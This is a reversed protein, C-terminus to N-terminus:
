YSNINNLRRCCVHERSLIPLHITFVHTDKNDRTWIIDLSNYNEVLCEAIGDAAIILTAIRLNVFIECYQVM